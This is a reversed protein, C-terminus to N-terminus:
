GQAIKKRARAEVGNGAYITEIDTMDCSQLANRIEDASRLHKYRDTLTDHTDLVAWQYLLKSGLKPYATQYDVVPSWRLFRPRIKGMGKMSKMKHLAVHVPWLVTTLFHVFRLAFVADKTLLYERMRKRSPTVPYNYAYHDIFLLGGPKVYSCLKQITEEPNPTHQIVGICIVIDFQGPLVPIKSIDAQAVSYNQYRACNKFNADVATSIDVAFVDAKNELLIETFRGAGCGAELVKKGHFIDLAGGAIRTLRDRSITLGTYSDLQTERFRNWQLGFSNAYNESPVFRPIGNKIEFKCGSPCTYDKKDPTLSLQSFHQPCVLQIEHQTHMDINM